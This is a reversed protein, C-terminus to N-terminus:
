NIYYVFSLLHLQNHAIHLTIWSLEHECTSSWINYIRQSSNLRVTSGWLAYKRLSRNIYAWSSYFTYWTAHGFRILMNYCIRRYYPKWSWSKAIVCLWRSYQLQDNSSILLKGSSILQNHTWQCARVFARISRILLMFKIWHALTVLILLLQRSIRIILKRSIPSHATYGKSRSMGGMIYKRRYRKHTALLVYKISCDQRYLLRLLLSSCPHM